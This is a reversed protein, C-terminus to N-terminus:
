GLFIGTKMDLYWNKQAYGGNIFETYVKIIVLLTAERLSCFIYHKWQIRRQITFLCYVCNKTPHCFSQICICIGAWYLIVLFVWQAHDLPTDYLFCKVCPFLLVILVRELSWYKLCLETGVQLKVALLCFLSAYEFCVNKQIQSTVTSWCM